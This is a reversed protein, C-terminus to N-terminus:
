EYVLNLQLSSLKSINGSASGDLNLYWIGDSPSYDGSIILEKNANNNYVKLMAKTLIVTMDADCLQGLSILFKEKMNPFLYIIRASLPLNKNPLLGVYTSKAKM